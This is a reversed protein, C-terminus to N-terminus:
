CRMCGSVGFSHIDAAPTALKVALNANARLALGDRRLLEALGGVQAGSRWEIHVRISMAAPNRAIM